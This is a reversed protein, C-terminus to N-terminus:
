DQGLPLVGQGPPATLGLSRARRTAFLQGGDGLLREHLAGHVEETDWRIFHLIRRGLAISALL